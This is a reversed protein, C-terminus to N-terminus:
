ALLFTPDLSSRRMKGTDISNRHISVLVRANGKDDLYMGMHRYSTISSNGFTRVFAHAANLYAGGRTEVAGANPNAGYASFFRTVMDVVESYTPLRWGAYTTELQSIVTNMTKDRTSQLKLWEIGTNTDIVALKDNTKKWDTSIFAAHTQASILGVALIFASLVSRKFM